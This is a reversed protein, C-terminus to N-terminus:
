PGGYFTIRASGVLGHQEFPQSWVADFELVPGVAFHGGLFHGFSWEHFVGVGGFSQTGQAEPLNPNGWTVTGSGLGLNALFGLGQLRPVLDVFPFIELRFGIGTANAKADTNRLQGGGFWFGFSVYDSLAGLVYLQTYTGAMLGTASYDASNGIDQSNNPYGSAAGLGAGLSLGVVLGSRHVHSSPLQTVPTLDGTPVAAAAGQSAAAFVLLPLM